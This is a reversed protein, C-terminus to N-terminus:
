TSKARPTIKSSARKNRNQTTWSAWRCNSPEYDGRPNIRDITLKPAPRRGMDAIFCEFGSKTVDGLVWRDCVKVGKAGYWPYNPATKLYCRDRMQRYVSYEPWEQRRRTAGHTVRSQGRVERQYCGCSTSHNGKRLNVTLVTTENGCDCRCKWASMKRGSSLHVQTYRLPTLRGVKQSTMDIPKPM